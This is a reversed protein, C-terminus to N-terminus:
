KKFEKKRLGEERAQDEEEDEDEALAFKQMTEMMRALTDLKEWKVLYYYPKEKNVNSIFYSVTLQDNYNVVQLAVENLRKM